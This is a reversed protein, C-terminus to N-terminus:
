LVKSYFACIPLVRFKVYRSPLYNLNIFVIYLMQHISFYFIYPSPANEADQKVYMLHDVHEISNIAVQINLLIRLSMIFQYLLKSLKQSSDNCADDSIVIM